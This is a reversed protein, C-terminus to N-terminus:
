QQPPRHHGRDPTLSPPSATIASRPHTRSVIFLILGALGLSAILACSLSILVPVTPRVEQVFADKLDNTQYADSDRNSIEEIKQADIVHPACEPRRNANHYEHQHQYRQYCIPMEEGVTVGNFRHAAFHGSILPCQHNNCVYSCLWTLGLDSLRQADDYRKNIPPVTGRFLHARNRNDFRNGTPLRWLKFIGVIGYNSYSGDIGTNRMIRRQEWPFMRGCPFFMGHRLFHEICQSRAANPKENMSSNVVLISPLLM